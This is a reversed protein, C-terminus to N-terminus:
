QQSSKMMGLFLVSGTLYRMVIGYISMFASLTKRKVLKSYPDDM